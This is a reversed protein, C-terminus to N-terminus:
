TQLSSIFVREQKSPIEFHGHDGAVQCVGVHVGSGLEGFAGGVMSGPGTADKLM